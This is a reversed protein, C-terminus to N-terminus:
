YVLTGLILNLAFMGSVDGFGMPVLNVQCLVDGWSTAGYLEWVGDNFGM